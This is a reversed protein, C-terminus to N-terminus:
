AICFTFLTSDLLLLNPGHSEFAVALQLISSRVVKQHCVVLGTFQQVFEALKLFLVSLWQVLYVCLVLYVYQITNYKSYNYHYNICVAIMIGGIYDLHFTICTHEDLVILYVIHDSVISFEFLLGSDQDTETECRIQMNMGM